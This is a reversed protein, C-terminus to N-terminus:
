RDFTSPGYMSGSEKTPDTHSITVMQRDPHRNCFFTGSTSSFERVEWGENMAKLLLEVFLRKLDTGPPVPHSEILSGHMSRVVHWRPQTTPELPDYATRRRVMRPLYGLRAAADLWTRGQVFVTFQERLTQPDDAIGSRGFTILPLLRREGEARCAMPRGVIKGPPREGVVLRGAVVSYKHGSRM